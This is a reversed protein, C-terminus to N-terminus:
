RSKLLTQVYPPVLFAAQHVAPTYYRCLGLFDGLRDPRPTRADVHDSAFSWSWVGTSYLPVPAFCPHVIPFVRRLRRQTQVWLDSTMFPSQSQLSFVGGPRLVRRVDQYFAEDFLPAAPGIPDTGDLIIVDYADDAASEVFRIGDGIHVALRPDDWATGISPLHVKCVEVVVADIEVLAVSEVSPHRLVERATGGDGGGIILVRRSAGVATLAPHTIMEHYFFEDAESTMLVSDLALVRGFTPTDFVEIQQFESRRRVVSGETRLVFRVTDQWSEEYWLSM